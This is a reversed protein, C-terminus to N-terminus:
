LAFMVRKLPTKKKVVIKPSQNKDTKGAPFRRAEIDKELEINAKKAIRERKERKYPGRIKSQLYEDYDARTDFIFKRKKCPFILDHEDCKKITVKKDKEGGKKRKEPKGYEKRFQKKRWYIVDGRRCPYKQKM